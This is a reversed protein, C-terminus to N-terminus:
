VRQPVYPVWLVCISAQIKLVTPGIPKYSTDVHECSQASHTHMLITRSLRPTKALCDGSTHSGHQPRLPRFCLVIKKHMAHVHGDSHRADISVLDTSGRNRTESSSALFQRPELVPRAMQMRMVYVHEVPQLANSQMSNTREFRAAKAGAGDSM